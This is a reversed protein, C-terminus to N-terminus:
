YTSATLFPRPPVNILSSGPHVLASSTPPVLADTSLYDLNLFKLTFVRLLRQKYGKNPLASSHNSLTFIYRLVRLALLALMGHSASDQVCSLNTYM